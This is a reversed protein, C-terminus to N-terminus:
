MATVCQFRCCRTFLICSSYYACPRRLISAHRPCKGRQVLDHFGLKPTVELFFDQHTKIYVKPAMIKLWVVNPAMSVRIKLAKALIEAFWFKQPHAQLGQVGGGVSSNKMVTDHIIEHNIM